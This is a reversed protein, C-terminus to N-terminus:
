PTPSVLTLFANINMKNFMCSMIEGKGIKRLNHRRQLTFHSQKSVNEPKKELIRKKELTRQDFM